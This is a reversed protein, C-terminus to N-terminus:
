SVINNQFADMRRKDVTNPRRQQMKALALHKWSTFSKSQMYALEAGSIM